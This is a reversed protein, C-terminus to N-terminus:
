LFRPLLCTSSGTPTPIYTEAAQTLAWSLIWWLSPAWGGPSLIVRGTSTLWGKEDVVGTSTCWDMLQTAIIAFISAICPSGGILSSNTIAKTLHRFLWHCFKLASSEAYCWDELSGTLRKTAPQNCQVGETMSPVTFHHGGQVHSQRGQGQHRYWSWLRLMELIGSDVCQSLVLFRSEAFFNSIEPGVSWITYKM